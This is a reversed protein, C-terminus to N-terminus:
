MCFSQELLVVFATPLPCINTRLCHRISDSNVLCHFRYSQWNPPSPNLIFPRAHTYSCVCHTATRDIVSKCSPFESQAQGDVVRPVCQLPVNVSGTSVPRRCPGHVRTTYVCWSGCIITASLQVINYTFM